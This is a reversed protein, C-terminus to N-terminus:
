LVVNVTDSTGTTSPINLDGTVIMLCFSVIKVSGLSGSNGEEGSVIVLLSSVKKSDEALGLLLDGRLERVHATSTVTTSV